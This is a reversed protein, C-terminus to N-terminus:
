PPPPPPYPPPSPPPPHPALPNPFPPPAPDPDGRRYHEDGVLFYDLASAPPLDEARRRESEAGAPDGLRELFDARRLHYARTPPGAQLARGTLHLARRYRDKESPGAPRGVVDALVLLRAYCDTRVLQKQAGGLGRDAE